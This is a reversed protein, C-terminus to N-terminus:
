DISNTNEEEVPSSQNEKVLILETFDDSLAYNGVCGKANIYTTLVLQAQAQLQAMQTNLQKLIEQTKKDIEIIDM